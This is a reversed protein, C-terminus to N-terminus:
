MYIYTLISNFYYKKREENKENCYDLYYNCLDWIEDLWSVYPIEDYMFAYDGNHKDMIEEMDDDYSIFHLEMYTKKVYDYDEICWDLLTEAGDKGRNNIEYKLQGLLVENHKSDNAKKWFEYLKEILKEKMLKEDKETIEM